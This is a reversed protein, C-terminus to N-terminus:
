NAPPLGAIFAPVRALADARAAPDTGVHVQGRASSRTRVAMDPADFDHYAGRYAVFTMAPGLTDALAHCPAAPTWDDAEGILVLLPAVPKWGATRAPGGCGPYFAVLGRILGKPTDPLAHGAALTTSGGDSWGMLVVGGPPIGPQRALWGAAALADRRRLGGATVTRERELTNCQSGLGRSGFSDPLLVTHGAGTLVNTWQAERSPFPGGCGHLLVIAPAATGARSAKHLRSKLGIGDPGPITVDEAQALGASLLLVAVSRWVVSAATIVIKTV